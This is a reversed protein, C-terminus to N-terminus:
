LPLPVMATAGPRLGRRARGERLIAALLRLHGADVDDAVVARREADAKRQRVFEGIMDGLPDVIEEEGMGLQAGGDKPGSIRIPSRGSSMRPVDRMLRSPAREQSFGNRDPSAFM